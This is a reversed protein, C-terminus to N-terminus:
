EDELRAFHVWTNGEDYVVTGTYTASHSPWPSAHQCTQLLKDLATPSSGVKRFMTLQEDNMREEDRVVPKKTNGEMTPRGM